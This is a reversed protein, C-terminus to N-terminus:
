AKRFEEGGDDGDNGFMEEYTGKPMENDSVGNEMYDRMTDEQAIDDSLHALWIRVIDDPNGATIGMAELYRIFADNYDLAVKVGLEPDFGMSMVHVFPEKSDQMTDNLKTISIKASEVDATHKDAAAQKAAVIAGEREVLLKKAEVQLMDKYADTTILTDLMRRERDESKELLRSLWNSM